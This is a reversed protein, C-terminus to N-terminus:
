SAALIAPSIIGRLVEDTVTQNKCDEVTQKVVGVPTETLNPNCNPPANAANSMNIYKDFELRKFHRVYKMVHGVLVEAEESVATCEIEQPIDSQRHPALADKLAAAYGSLKAGPKDEVLFVDELEVVGFKLKSKSATEVVRIQLPVVCGFWDKKGQVVLKQLDHDGVNKCLCCLISCWAEKVTGLQDLHWLLHTLPYCLSTFLLRLVRLKPLFSTGVLAEYLKLFRNPVRKKAIPSSAYLLVQRTSLYLRAWEALPKGRIEESLSYAGATLTSFRGAKVPAWFVGAPSVGANEELWHHFADNGAIFDYALPILSRLPLDTALCKQVAKDALHLRHVPEMIVEDVAGCAYLESATTFLGRDTVVKKMRPLLADGPLDFGLALLSEQLKQFYDLVYQLYKTTTAPDKQRVLAALVLRTRWRQEMTDLYSFTLCLIDKSGPLEGADGAIVFDGGGLRLLFEM